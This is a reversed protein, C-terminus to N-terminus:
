QCWSTRTTTQLKSVPKVGLASCVQDLSTTTSAVIAVSVHRTAQKRSNGCPRRPWSMLPLSKCQSSDQPVVRRSVFSTQASRCSTSTLDWSFGFSPIGIRHSSHDVTQRHGQSDSLMNSLAVPKPPRLVCVINGKKRRVSGLKRHICSNEVRVVSTGYPAAVAINGVKAEVIHAACPAIVAIDGTADSQGGCQLAEVIMEVGQPVLMDVIQQRKIYEQDLDTMVDLVVADREDLKRAVKNSIDNLEELLRQVRRECADAERMQDANRQFRYELKRMRESLVALKKRPPQNDRQRWDAISKELDLVGCELDDIRAPVNLNIRTELRRFRAEIDEFKSGRDATDGSLSNVEQHPIRLPENIAIVPSTAPTTTVETTMPASMLVSAAMPTIAAAAIAGTTMPAAMSMPTATCAVM